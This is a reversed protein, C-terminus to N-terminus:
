PFPIDVNFCAPLNENDVLAIDGGGGGRCTVVAGIPVDVRPGAVRPEHHHAKRRVISQECVRGGSSVDVSCRPHMPHGFAGVRRKM